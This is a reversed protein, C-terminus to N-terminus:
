PNKIVADRFKLWKSKYQKKVLIINKKQNTPGSILKIESLRLLITNKRINYVFSTRSKASFHLVSIKQIEAGDATVWAAAGEGSVKNQAVCSQLM